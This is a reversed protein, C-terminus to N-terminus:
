DGCAVRASAEDFSLPDQPDLEAGEPIEDVVTFLDPNDAAIELMFSPDIHDFLDFDSPPTLNRTALTLEFNDKTDIVNCASFRADLLTAINPMAESAVELDLGPIWRTAMEAADEPNERLWQDSKARALLFKSLVDSQEEIFTESTVFYGINAVHNGGRLVEYAGPVTHRATVTWPDWVAFADLGGTQLGIPMEPPPTNILEVDSGTLGNAELLREVYIANTSGATIGIKKGRLTSLDDPEIGSGERAAMAISGDLRLRAATSMFYGVIIADVGSVVAPFFPTGVQVLDVAGAQMANLADVGSPFPSALKVDLGEDEFFGQDIAAALAMQDLASVYGVNLEVMDDQASASSIVIVSAAVCGALKALYEKIM